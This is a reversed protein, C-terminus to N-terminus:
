KSVSPPAICVCECPKPKSGNGGVVSAALIAVIVFVIGGVVWGLDSM